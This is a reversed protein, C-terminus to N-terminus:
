GLPGYRVPTADTQPSLTSTWEWLAANAKRLFPDDPPSLHVFIRMARAAGPLDGLAELAMALGYYANIQSSRIAVANQFFDKAMRHRSLGLMTFGMNVHAEPLRPARALVSHFATAAHEYQKAHLM